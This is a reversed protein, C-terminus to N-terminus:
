VLILIFSCTLVLLNLLFFDYPHFTNENDIVYKRRLLFILVDIQKYPNLIHVGGVKEHMDPFRKNMDIIIFVVILAHLILSVFFLMLVTDNMM